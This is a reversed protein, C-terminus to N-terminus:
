HAVQATQGAEQQAQVAAGQRRPLVQIHEDGDSSVAAGEVGVTAVTRVCGFTEKWLKIEALQPLAVHTETPM